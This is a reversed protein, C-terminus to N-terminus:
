FPCFIQFNPCFHGFNSFIKFFPLQNRAIIAQLFSSSFSRITMKTSILKSLIDARIYLLIGGGNSDRDFRYPESFGHIQFQETPFSSDLKTESIMPNEINNNIIDILSDFKNRLSYHKISCM